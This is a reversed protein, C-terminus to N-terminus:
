AWSIGEGFLGPMGLFAWSGWAVCWLMMVEWGLATGLNMACLGCRVACPVGLFCWAGAVCWLLVLSGVTGVDGAPVYESLSTGRDRNGVSQTLDGWASASDHCGPGVALHRPLAVTGCPVSSSSVHCCMGSLGAGYFCPTHLLAEAYAHCGCGMAGVASTCGCGLADGGCSGPAQTLLFCSDWTLCLSENGVQRGRLM